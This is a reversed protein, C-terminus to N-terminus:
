KQSSSPDNSCRYPTLPPRGMECILFRLSRLPSTIQEPDRPQTRTRVALRFTPQERTRRGRTEQLGLVTGPVKGDTLVHSSFPIPLSHQWLAGQNHQFTMLSVDKSDTAVGYGSSHCGKGVRGIELIESSRVARLWTTHQPIPPYPQRKLGPVSAWGRLSAHVWIVVMWVGNPSARGCVSVRETRGPGRAQKYLPVCLPEGGRLSKGWSEWSRCFLPSDWLRPLLWRMGVRCRARLNWGGARQM